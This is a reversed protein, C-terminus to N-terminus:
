TLSHQKGKINLILMVEHFSTKLLTGKHGVARLDRAGSARCLALGTSM